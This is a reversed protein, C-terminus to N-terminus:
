NGLLGYAAYRFVPTAHSRAERIASSEMSACLFRGTLNVAMVTEWQKLTMEVFPADLQIGANNVLIDLSGWTGIVRQFMAMVQDEQSVDAQVAIAEGTGPSAGWITGEDDLCIGDPTAGSLDAWTRADKLLGDEGITSSM